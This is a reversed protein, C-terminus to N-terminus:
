FKMGLVYNAEHKNYSNNLQIYHGRGLLLGRVLSPPFTCIFALTYTHTYINLTYLILVPCYCLSFIGFWPNGTETEGLISYYWMSKLEEIAM